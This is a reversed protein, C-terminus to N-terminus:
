AQSGRGAHHLGRCRTGTSTDRGLPPLPMGGKEQGQMGSMRRAQQPGRAPVAIGRASQPMRGPQIRAGAAM